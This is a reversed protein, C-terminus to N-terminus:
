QPLCQIHQGQNCFFISIYTSFWHKRIYEVGTLLLKEFSIFVNVEQSDAKRESIM